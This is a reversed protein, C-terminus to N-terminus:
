NQVQWNYYNFPIQAYTRCSVHIEAFRFLLLFSGPDYNTLASRVHGPRQYVPNGSGRLSRIIWALINSKLKPTKVDSRSLHTIHDGANNNIMREFGSECLPEQTDRDRKPTPYMNGHFVTIFIGARQPTRHEVDEYINWKIGVHILHRSLDM